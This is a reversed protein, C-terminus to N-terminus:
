RKPIVVANLMSGLLAPEVNAFSLILTKAEVPVIVQTSTVEGAAAKLKLVFRVAARSDVTLDDTAVITGGFAQVQQPYVAKRASVPSTGPVVVVNVNPSAGSTDPPGVALVKMYEGAQAVANQLQARTEAPFAGGQNALQELTRDDLPVITWSTPVAVSVTGEPDAARQFGAPTPAAIPVTSSASRGGTTGPAATLQTAGGLTVDSLGKVTATTTTPASSATSVPATTSSAAQAGPARTGALTTTASNAGGCAALVLTAAVAFPAGPGRRRM